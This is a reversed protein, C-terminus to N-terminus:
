RGGFRDQVDEQRLLENRCNNLSVGRICNYVISACGIYTLWKFDGAYGLGAIGANIGASTYLTKELDNLKEIQNKLNM